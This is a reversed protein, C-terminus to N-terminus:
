MVKHAKAMAQIEAQTPKPDDKKCRTLALLIAAIIMLNKM